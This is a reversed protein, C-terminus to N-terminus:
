ILLLRELEMNVFTVRLLLLSLLCNSQSRILFYNNGYFTVPGNTGSGFEAAAYSAELLWFRLRVQSTFGFHCKFGLEIVAHGEIEFRKM